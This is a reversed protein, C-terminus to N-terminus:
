TAAQAILDQRGAVEADTWGELATTIKDATARAIALPTYYGPVQTAGCGATSYAPLSPVVTRRDYDWGAQSLQADILEDGVLGTAVIYQTFACEFDGIASTVLLQAYAPNDLDTATVRSPADQDLIKGADYCAGAVVAIAGVVTLGRMFRGAGHSAFISIMRPEARNSPLRSRPSSSPSLRRSPRISPM